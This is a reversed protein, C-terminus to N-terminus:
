FHANGGIRERDAYADNKQVSSFRQAIAIARDVLAAPMANAMSCRLPTLAASHQFLLSRPTVATKVAM